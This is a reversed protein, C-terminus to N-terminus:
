AEAEPPVRVAVKCWDGKCQEGGLINGAAVMVQEFERRTLWGYYTHMVAIQKGDLDFGHFVYFVEEEDPPHPFPYGDKTMIQNRYSSVILINKELAFRSCNKAEFRMVEGDELVADDCM